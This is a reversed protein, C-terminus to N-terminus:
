GVGPISVAIENSSKISLIEVIRDNSKAIKTTEKLQKKQIDKDGLNRRLATFAEATGTETAVLRTDIAEAKEKKKKTKPDGAFLVKGMAGWFGPMKSPDVVPKGTLDSQWLKKGMERNKNKTWDLGKGVVDGIKTGLNTLGFDLQKAGKEGATLTLPKGQMRERQRRAGFGISDIDAQSMGEKRLAAENREKAKRWPTMPQGDPGTEIVKPEEPGGEGAIWEVGKAALNVAKTFARGGITSKTALREWAGGLKNIAKEMPTMQKDAVEKMMGGANKQETTLEKIKHSTGILAKQYAISKSPLGLMMLLQTQQKANLGNLAQEMDAMVNAIGAFEGKANFVSIGAREFAKANKLSITTLDRLVIMFATGAEAGKIGKDAFVALTALTEEISVGLQAAATAAKNTLAESFQQVSANALTNAKVLNDGVKIMNQLNESADNSAMGLASQSDTLLDTATALDFNGAQAFTAVTPMAKLSAEASLGASALFFYSDAAQKASATTERSVKIAAQTMDKRMVDSVDGMIALSRNMARDLAENKKVLLAMATGAMALGAVIGKGAIKVAGGFRGFMGRARRLDKALKGTRAVINVAFEGITSAM